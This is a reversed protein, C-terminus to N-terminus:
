LSIVNASPAVNVSWNAGRIVTRIDKLEGFVPQRVSNPLTKAAVYETWSWVSGSETARNIDFFHWGQQDRDVTKNATALYLQGLQQALQGQNVTGNFDSIAARVITALQVHLGDTLASKMARIAKDQKAFGAISPGSRVSDVAAQVAGLTLDFAYQIDALHEQEADRSDNAISQSVEYYIRRAAGGVYNQINGGSMCLGTSHLGPGLHYAANTGPEAKKIVHVLAAWGRGPRQSCAIHFTPATFGTPPTTTGLDNSDNSIAQLQARTALQVSHTALM